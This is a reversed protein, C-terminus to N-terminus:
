KDRSIDEIKGGPRVQLVRTLPIELSIKLGQIVEALAKEIEGKILAKLGETLDKTRIIPKEYEVMKVKPLEYEVEVYKPVDIIVEVFKPVKVEYEKEVIKFQILEGTSMPIKEGAM